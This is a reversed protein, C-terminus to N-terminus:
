PTTGSLVVDLYWRDSGFTITMELYFTMDDSVAQYYIYYEGVSEGVGDAEANAGEDVATASFSLGPQSQYAALLGSWAEDPNVSDSELCAHMRVPVGQSSYFLTFDEGFVADIGQVACAIMNGSDDAYAYNVQYELQNYCDTWYYSASGMRDSWANLFALCAAEAEENLGGSWVDYEGVPEMSGSDIQELVSLLGAKMQEYEDGYPQVADIAVSSTGDLLGAEKRQLLWGPLLTGAALVAAALLLPLATGLLIKRLRM